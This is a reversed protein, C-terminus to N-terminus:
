AFVHVRRREFMNLLQHDDSGPWAFEPPFSEFGFSVELKEGFRSRSFQRLGTDLPDALWGLRYNRYFDTPGLVKLSLRTATLLSSRTHLELDDLHLRAFCYLLGYNVIQFAARLPTEANPGVKLEFLEYHGPAVRHGLDISTHGEEYDRLLGSAAPIQNVWVDSAEVIAKELTKEISWNEPSIRPNARWRWIEKSRCPSRDWNGEICRYIRQILATCDLGQPMVSLSMATTKRKHSMGLANFIIEDVGALMGGTRISGGSNPPEEITPLGVQSRLTALDELPLVESVDAVKIQPLGDLKRGTALVTLFATEYDGRGRQESNKVGNAANYRRCKSRGKSNVLLIFEGDRNGSPPLYLWQRSM